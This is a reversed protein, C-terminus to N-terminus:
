PNASGAFLAQVNEAFAQASKEVTGKIFISGLSALRGTMQMEMDYSVDTVNPEKEVIQVNLKSRFLGALALPKGTMEVHLEEGEVAEKLEGSAKFKITMFQVKVVMDAEYQTPSIAEIRECGPVCSALKEADMFVSWVHDKAAHIAFSGTLKM